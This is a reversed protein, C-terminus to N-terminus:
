QPAARRTYRTELTAQGCVYEEIREDPRSELVQRVTWPRTFMVPDTITSIVELHKGADTMQIKRIVSLQNSHPVGMDSLMTQANFNSTTVVLDGNSWAGSSYGMYSPDAKEAEGPADGIYVIEFVHNHEYILVALNGKQIIQVPYPQQLIRVPGAPLCPTLDDREKPKGAAAKLAAVNKALAASGAATYSIPGDLPRIDSNPEVPWWMGRIEGAAAVPLAQAAVQAHGSNDFPGFGCCLAAAMALRSLSSMRFKIM